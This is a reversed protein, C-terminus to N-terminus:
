TLLLTTCPEVGNRSFHEIDQAYAETIFQDSGAKTKAFVPDLPLPGRYHPHLHFDPQSGSNGVEAAALRPFVLERLGIPFLAAGQCCRILFNRRTFDFSQTM